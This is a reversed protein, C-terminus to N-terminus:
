AGLSENYLERKRLNGIVAADARSLVDVYKAIQNEATRLRLQM